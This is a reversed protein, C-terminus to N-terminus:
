LSRYRDDFEAESYYGMTDVLYEQLSFLDNEARSAKTAPNVYAQHYKHTQYATLKPTYESTQRRSHEASWRAAERRERSFSEKSSYGGKAWEPLAPGQARAEIRGGKGRAVPLGERLARRMQARSSFGLERARANRRAEEARYDRRRKAV